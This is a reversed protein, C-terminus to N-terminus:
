RKEGQVWLGATCNDTLKTVVDKLKEIRGEIKARKEEFAETLARAQKRKAELVPLDKDLFQAINLRLNGEEWDHYYNDLEVVDIAINLRPDGKEEKNLSPNGEEWDIYYEDSMGGLLESVEAESLGLHSPNDELITCLEEVTAAGTYTRRLDM